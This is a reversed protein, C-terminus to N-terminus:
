EEEDYDYDHNFEIENLKRIHEKMDAEIWPAMEEMAKGYELMDDSINKLLKVSDEYTLIDDDVNNMIEKLKRARTSQCGKCIFHNDPSCWLEFVSRENRCYSCKVFALRHKKDELDKVIDYYNQWGKSYGNRSRVWVIGKRIEEEEARREVEEVDIFEDDYVEEPGNVLDELDGFDYTFDELLDLLREKLGTQYTFYRNDDLIWQNWKDQNFHGYLNEKFEINAVGEKYGPAWFHKSYKMLEDIMPTIYDIYAESDLYWLEKLHTRYDIYHCTRYYEQNMWAQIEYQYTTLEISGDDQKKETWELKHPKRRLEPVKDQDDQNADLLVKVYYNYKKNLKPEDIRDILEYLNSLDTKHKNSIKDWMQKPIWYVHEGDFMDEGNWHGLVYCGIGYKFLKFTERFGNSNWQKIFEEVADSIQFLDIDELLQFDEIKYKM